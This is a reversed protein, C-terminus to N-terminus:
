AEGSTCDGTGVLTSSVGKSATALMQEMLKGQPDSEVRMRREERVVDREKYFERMVPHTFREAELYAWLELRNVLEGRAGELRM